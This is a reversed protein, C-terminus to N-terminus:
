GITLTESVNPAHQLFIAEEYFKLTYKTLVFVNGRSWLIIMLWSTLMLRISDDSKKTIDDCKRPKIWDHGQHAWTGIWSRMKCKTILKRLRNWDLATKTNWSMSVKQSYLGIVKYVTGWNWNIHHRRRVKAKKVPIDYLHQQTWRLPNYWACVSNVKTGKSTINCKKEM